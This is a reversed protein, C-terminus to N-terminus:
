LNHKKYLDIIDQVDGASGLFIPTRQHIDTPVIDPFFFDLFIVHYEKSKINEICSGDRNTPVLTQNLCYCTWIQAAIGTALFNEIFHQNM